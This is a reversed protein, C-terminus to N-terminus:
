LCKCLSFFCCSPYSQSPFLFPHLSFPLSYSSSHFFNLNFLSLSKSWSLMNLLSWFSQLTVSNLSTWMYLVGLDKLFIYIYIYIKSSNCFLIKWRNTWESPQLLWLQTFEFEFSPVWFRKWPRRWPHLPGCVQDMRWEEGLNNSSIAIPLPTALLWIPIWQPHEYHCVYFQHSLGGGHTWELGKLSSIEFKHMNLYILSLDELNAIIGFIGM